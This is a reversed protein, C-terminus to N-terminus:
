GVLGGGRFDHVSASVVCYNAARQEELPATRIKLPYLPGSAGRRGANPLHPIGGRRDTSQDRSKARFKEVAFEHELLGMAMRCGSLMARGDAAPITGMALARVTQSMVLRIADPDELLPVKIPYMPDANTWARHRHCFKDGTKPAAGCREGSVHLHACRRHEPPNWGGVEKAHGTAATPVDMAAARNTM